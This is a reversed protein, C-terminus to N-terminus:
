STVGLRRVEGECPRIISAEVSFAGLGRAVNPAGGSQVAPIGGLIISIARFGYSRHLLDVFMIQPGFHIARNRLEVLRASRLLKLDCLSQMEIFAFARSFTSTYYELFRAMPPKMPANMSTFEVREYLQSVMLRIDILYQWPLRKLM